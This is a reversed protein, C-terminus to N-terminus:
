SQQNDGANRRSDCAARRASKSVIAIGESEGPVVRVLLRRMIGGPIAALPGGGHGGLYALRALTV